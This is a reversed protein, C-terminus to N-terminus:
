LKAQPKLVFQLKQSLMINGTIKLKKQFFAQQTNLKGTAIQVFDEDSVTLTVDAKTSAECVKLTGPSAKLDLLLSTTKDGNTINWKFVGNVQKTLNPNDGLKSAIEEWFQASKLHSVGLNTGSAGAKSVAPAPAPWKGPPPATALNAYIAMGAEQQNPPYTPNKFDTIEGWSKQFREPTLENELSLLCGKAREWRLKAAYGAGVEFLGGNETSNEHSLLLVFPAVYEPRVLNFVEPPMIGETLRSAAMPAITNVLINYKAGEISLTNAFGLLALKAASYNSQGFNGYIGSTSSTM